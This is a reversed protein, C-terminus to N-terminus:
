RAQPNRVMLGMHRVGDKRPPIGDPRQAHRMKYKGAPLCIWLTQLGTFTKAYPLCCAGTDAYIDGTGVKLYLTPAKLGWLEEMRTIGLMERMANDLELMPAVQAEKKSSEKQRKESM